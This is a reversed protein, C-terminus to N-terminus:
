VTKDKKNMILMFAAPMFYFTLFLSFLLGGIVGIAMPKLLETGEGWGVALPLLGLIGVMATMLIPRMRLLAGEVIAEKLPVGDAMLQQIFTLLVVGHVIEIGALILVGILVTIGLPTGTIFLAAVIGILSLPIRLLILLPWMLSEFQVALIVYAFFLALSIIVALAKFNEKMMQAQGGAKIYSGPPLVADKVKRYVDRTVKGVNSGLVSATVKITRMQDKRDIEVPGVAQTLTGIDRLYILGGKSFLPINEIDGKGKFNKEDVILRVPYYYGSEKYSTVVQGDVLTKITNAVQTGTLGLDAIKNRNLLFQYEPKTIDISVDLNAIGPVDKILPVISNASAFLEQLSATKPANLEVEVDFDGTQRIGKMKTHFMKVKVGPYKASKQVEESYKSVFEDTSLKRKGRPVLQIDVEGENAIEYTVLGWVKGGSLTSYSEISPLEKVKNEINSLVKSTEHVAIGTPMKVKVTIMGDDAQPLFESGLIALLFIGSIFLIGTVTLLLKRRSLVWLLSRRYVAKLRGLLADSITQASKQAANGKIFQNVLSPTVTLAVIRSFGIALAVVIVFEKFLLSILGPVMLFPLFLVMFILTAYTLAEGVEETGQVVFDPTGNEHLRTINELVVVSDDLIVTIAVILGGLTFINFSYGLLEMMFFTMLLSVPMALVVVLVRRWGSLFFWTVLIVLLAAILAADRVGNNASRIYTAQNYIVGIKIGAPVISKLEMIKKQIGAEVDLTNVEAQKFISLKVGERGGLKTTVRQIDNTDKVEALDKLYVTKGYKDPLIILNKIEDISQYLGKTRVTFERHATTVLGESEEINEERLRQAIRDITLGLVQIKYTDLFVRIERKAGGSVETGASGPIGVFQTQLYNEVWTRLKVKDWDDSTIMLDMVPLQSPDAKFILPEDADKPLQKRVLGMKALVDQYAIDRDADYTFNVLLTYLGETCQSELYDLNDVTAVKQEVIEAINDEIEEPTAGRWNIYVKVMPYTIDPLLNIPMRMFSLVGIVVVAAMLVFVSVPKKISIDTIRM